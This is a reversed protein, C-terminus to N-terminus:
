RGGNHDPTNARSRFAWRELAAQLESPRVPKSLYDDMGGALCKESEGQLANATLHVIIEGRETFKVANGVLNALIQRLRGPDVRLRTPMHPPIVNALEVGRSQASKALLELTSEVTEILDFDFNEFIIKGAEIKSFDLIDDIITPLMEGSSRITEAFERQQPELDSELLLGAMGIVGNMPTRIEHSMNALFESKARNAKEAVEKAAKLNEEGLKRGIIDRSLGFTGIVNGSTDHWPMKTTSVWTEQGDPWTEKEEVGVISQGTAIIRQEDALAAFAHEDAYLDKDTKGIIESQDKFGARHLFLRNVATFRSERDKFYILDPLNDMLATM